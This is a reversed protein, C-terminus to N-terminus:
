APHDTSTQYRMKQSFCDVALPTEPNSKPTDNTTNGRAHGTRDGRPSTREVEGDLVM